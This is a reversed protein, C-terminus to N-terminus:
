AFSGSHKDLEPPVVGALDEPKLKAITFDDFLCALRGRGGVVANYRHAREARAYELVLKALALRRQAPEIPPRLRGGRRTRSPSRTVDGVPRYKPPSLPM